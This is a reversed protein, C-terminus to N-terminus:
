EPDAEATIEVVMSPSSIEWELCTFFTKADGLTADPTFGKEMLAQYDPHNSIQSLLSQAYNVLEILEM